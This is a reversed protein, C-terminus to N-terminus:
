EHAQNLDIPPHGVDQAAHDLEKLFLKRVEDLRDANPAEFRLVLVPQTNSARILGWADGFDIRVGDIDTLKRGPALRAKAAAVLAFKKDEECDVRIEPTSVSPALGSLLSSVPGSHSSAIEFVRLAAYIADDYGFYRDAFFIHGSMEGALLAGTEKMKSKILSHGTKWMLPKGGHREIDAYLRHSSKVESIITSGPRDKLVARSLIVMLEDGFIIRGTEDVLGIRDSDGDFAVGFDAGTRQVTAVLEKLNSPVTPDPHHNPFRGDLECYLPTVQAGLREFLLPAVTSATGNGADLVVRLPRLSRANTVLHDLYDPIVEYRSVSGRQEPPRTCSEILRRIVQIDEGHLTSKGLSIKFGNYDAPNHSGTVMIGGALGKHFVSFYTLPTPCVGLDLVSLGCSSFASILASAYDDSTLRCDRGVSVTLSTLPKGSREGLMQAYAYGIRRALEASLDRAAIGRIDYERFISTNLPLPALRSSNSNM